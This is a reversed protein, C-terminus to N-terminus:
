VLEPAHYLSRASLAMAASSPSHTCDKASQPATTM